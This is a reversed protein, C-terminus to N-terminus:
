KTHEMHELTQSIINMVHMDDIAYYIHKGVKRSKVLNLSKLISLQHSIGSQSINVIKCIDHVCLEKNKIAFIIKLRTNDSLAKFFVSTKNIIYEKPLDDNIDYVSNNYM